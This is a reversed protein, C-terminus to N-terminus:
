RPVVRSGPTRARAPPRGLHRVKRHVRYRHTGVSDLGGTAAACAAQGAEVPSDGSKLGPLFDLVAVPELAACPETVGLVVGLLPRCSRVPDRPRRDGHARALVVREAAGQPRHPGDVRLREGVALVQGRERFREDDGHDQGAGALAAAARRNPVAPAMLCRPRSASRRHSRKGEPRSPSRGPYGPECSEVPKLGIPPM